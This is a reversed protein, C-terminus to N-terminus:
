IKIKIAIGVAYPLRGAQSQVQAEATVWVAATPNKIRQAVTPGRIFTTKFTQMFLITGLVLESTHQPRSESGLCGCKLLKRCPTIDTTHPDGESFCFRRWPLSWPPASTKCCCTRRCAVGLGVGWSPPALCELRPPWAPPNPKEAWMWPGAEQPFVPHEGVQGLHPTAPPPIIAVFGKWSRAMQEWQREKTASMVGSAVCSDELPMTGVCARGAERSCLDAGLEDTEGWIKPTM